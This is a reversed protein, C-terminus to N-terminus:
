PMAVPLCPASGPRWAAVGASITLRGLKEGTSRKMLEKAMVARRLHNAVTLAERLRTNPLIVAFEEGGYRAAVDRGKVNQKVCLGVLRLVQDGTLHGYTDNFSKFHDVDIMVLSMPAGNAAAGRLEKECMQDFYKRNALTTLPDSLSEHRVAELAAQLQHIEQRSARLRAELVHNSQEIERTTEIVTALIARLGERDVTRGLQQTADALSESYSSASGVALDIMSMVQKIEGVVQAGVSEIRDDTRKPSLYTAHIADIDAAALSGGRVLVDNIAKNLGPIYGTAYDYWVEYYRPEAPQHQAKIQELATDAFAWTREQEDGGVAM